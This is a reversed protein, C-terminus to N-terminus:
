DLNILSIRICEDTFFFECFDLSIMNPIWGKRIDESAILEDMSEALRSNAQGALSRISQPNTTLCSLAQAENQTLTWSFEFLKSGDHSFDSYHGFQDEKMVDFVQANSWYGTVPIFSTRFVGASRNETNDAVGDFLM